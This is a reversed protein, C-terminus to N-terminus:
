NPGSILIHPFGLNVSGRAGGTIIATKGELSFTSLIRKPRRVPNSSPMEPEPPIKVTINPDTQALPQKAQRFATISIQRVVHRQVNTPLHSRAKCASRVAPRFM